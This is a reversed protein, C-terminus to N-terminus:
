MGYKETLQRATPLGNYEEGQPGVFRSEGLRLVPIDTTMGNSHKISIKILDVGPQSNAEPQRTQPAPQAPQAPVQVIVREYRVPTDYGYSYGCTSEYYRHGAYLLYPAALWYGYNLNRHHGSHWNNGIVAGALAGAPIAFRASDRDSNGSVFAGIGAGIAAGLIARDGNGAMSEGPMAAALLCMATFLIKRM